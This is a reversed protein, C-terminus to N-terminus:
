SFVHLDTFINVSQKEYHPRQKLLSFRLKRKRGSGTGCSEISSLLEQKTSGGIFSAQHSPETEFKCPWLM